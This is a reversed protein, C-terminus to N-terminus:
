CPVSLKVEVVVLKGHQTIYLIDLPGAPTNLECCVPLMGSFINDIDEIPISSPNNFLFNQLWKEDYFFDSNSQLGIKELPRPIGDSILVPSPFASKSM